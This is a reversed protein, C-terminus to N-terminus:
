QEDHELLKIRAEHNDLRQNHKELSSAIRQLHSCVMSLKSHIAGCWYMGGGVIGAIAISITVMGIVDMSNDWELKQMTADPM